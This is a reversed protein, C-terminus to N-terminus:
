NLHEIRDQRKGLVPFQESNKVKSMAYALNDKLLATKENVYQKRNLHSGTWFGDVVNFPELVIVQDAWTRSERLRWLAWCVVEVNLCYSTVVFADKLAHQKIVPANRRTRSLHQYFTPSEQNNETVRKSILTKCGPAKRLYESELSSSSASHKYVPFFGVTWTSFLKTNM